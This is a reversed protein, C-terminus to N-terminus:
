ACRISGFYEDRLGEGVQQHLEACKSIPHIVRVLTQTLMVSQVNVPYDSQQRFVFVRGHSLENRFKALMRYDRISTLDSRIM